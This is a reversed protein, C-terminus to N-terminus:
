LDLDNRTSSTRTPSAGSESEGADEPNLSSSILGHANGCAVLM